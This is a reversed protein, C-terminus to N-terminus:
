RAVAYVCVGLGLLLLSGYFPAISWSMWVRWEPMWRKIIALAQQRRTLAETEPDSENAVTPDLSFVPLRGSSSIVANYLKRYAREQKLYNADIFSFLAVAFVGLVAVSGSRQTLAFGYAATVVPLLWGKASSSATSMRTVVAQIFDLHKRQDEPNVTQQQQSFNM